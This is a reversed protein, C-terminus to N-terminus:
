DSARSPAHASSGRPAYVGIFNVIIGADAAGVNVVLGRGDWRIETRQGFNYLGFTRLFDLLPAGVKHGGMDTTFRQDDTIIYVVSGPRDLGLRTFKDFACVGVGREPNCVGHETQTDVTEMQGFQSVIQQARELPMGIEVPGISKGPVIAGTTQAQLSYTPLAVLIIVGIAFVFRRM